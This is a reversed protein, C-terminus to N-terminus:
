SKKELCIKNEGAEITKFDFYTLCYAVQDMSYYTYDDTKSIYTDDEKILKAPCGSNKWKDDNGLFESYNNDCENDNEEVDINCILEKLKEIIEKNKM